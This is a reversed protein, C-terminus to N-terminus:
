RKYGFMGEFLTAIIFNLMLFLMISLGFADPINVQVFSFKIIVALIVGCILMIKSNLVIDLFGM